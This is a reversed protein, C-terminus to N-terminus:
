RTDPASLNILLTPAILTAISDPTMAWTYAPDIAIAASIGPDRADNEWEPPLANVNVGGRAFYRCDVGHDGVTACYQTYQAQGPRAGAVQLATGGGTSFGLVSIRSADVQSGFTPNALIADLAASIDATRDWARIARRPSSDGSTSVLNNVGLM